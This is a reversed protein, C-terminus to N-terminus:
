FATHCNKMFKFSSSCHTAALGNGPIYSFYSFTVYLLFIYKMGLHVISSYLLCTKSDALTWLRNSPYLFIIYIYVWNLIGKGKLFAGHCVYQYPHFSIDHLYSLYNQSLFVVIICKRNNTSFVLFLCKHFYFISSIEQPSQLYQQTLTFHKM